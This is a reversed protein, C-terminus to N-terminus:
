RVKFKRTWTRAVPDELGHVKIHCSVYDNYGTDCKDLLFEPM